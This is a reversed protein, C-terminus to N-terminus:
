CVYVSVYQACVCVCSEIVTVTRSTTPKHDYNIFSELFIFYLLFLVSCCKQNTNTSQIHM